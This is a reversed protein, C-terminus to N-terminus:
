QISYIGSLLILMLQDLAYNCFEISIYTSLLPQLWCSLCFRTYSLIVVDPGTVCCLLSFQCQECSLSPEKWFSKSGFGELELGMIPLRFQLEVAIM